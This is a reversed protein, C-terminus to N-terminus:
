RRGREALKRLDEPSTNDDIVIADLRANEAKEEKTGEFVPDNLDLVVQTPDLNFSTALRGYREETRGHRESAITFLDEARAMFDKRQSPILREGTLLRNYLGMIAGPVGRANAATAQEGERVTSPPDLIKMYAFILSIDGAATNARGSSAVKAYANRIIKFPGSEKIFEDRLNKTQTFKLKAAPDVKGGGAGTGLADQIKSADGDAM